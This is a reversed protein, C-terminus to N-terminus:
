CPALPFPLLPPHLLYPTPHLSPAAKGGSTRFPEAKGSYGNTKTSATGGEYQLRLRLPYNESQPFAFGKGVDSPSAAEMGLCEMLWDGIGWVRGGVGEEGWV